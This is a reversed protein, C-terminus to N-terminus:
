LHILGVLQLFYFLLFSIFSLAFVKAKVKAVPYLSLKTEWKCHVRCTATKKQGRAKPSDWNIFNAIFLIPIFHLFFDSTPFQVKFVHFICLVCVCVHVYKLLKRSVTSISKKRSFCGKRGRLAVGAESCHSRGPALVTDTSSDWVSICGKKILGEFQKKLVRKSTWFNYPKRNYLIM